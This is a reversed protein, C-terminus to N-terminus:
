RKLNKNPIIGFSETVWKKLENLDSGQPLKAQVVVSMRDSSFQDNHFSKLDEWLTDKGGKTLSFLNGWGFKSCPHTKDTVNENLLLESRVSDYPFNGEFEDNVAQIERDMADKKLLPFALLNAQM